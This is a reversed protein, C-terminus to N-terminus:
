SFLPASVVNVNAIRNFLALKWEKFADEQGKNFIEQFRELSSTSIGALCLVTIRIRSLCQLVLNRRSGLIM